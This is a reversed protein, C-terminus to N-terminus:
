PTPDDTDKVEIDHLKDKVLKPNILTRVGYYEIFKVYAKFEEMYDYTTTNMWQFFTYICKEAKM